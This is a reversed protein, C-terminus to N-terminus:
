GPSGPGTISSWKDRAAERSRNAGPVSNWIPLAVKTALVPVYRSEGIWRKRSPSSRAPIERSRIALMGAADVIEDVREYADVPRSPVIDRVTNGAVVIDVGRRQETGRGDILDCGRLVTTTM